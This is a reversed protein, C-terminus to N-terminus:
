DSVPRINLGYYKDLTELSQLYKTNFLVYYSYNDNYVSSTWITGVDVSNTLECHWIDGTAPIFIKKNTDDHDVLLLGVVGSYEPLYDQNAPLRYIGGKPNSSTLEKWPYFDFLYPYPNIRGYLCQNFLKILEDSTPTRWTGGWNVRAADHEMDMSGPYVYTSNIYGNEFGSKWGTFTVKGKDSIEIGSYRPETEGWAFYDGYCTTPSGAVTTAGVNMTAWKLGAIEVYKHGNIEPLVVLEYYKGAQFGGEKTSRVIEDGDKVSLQVGAPVVIYYTGTETTSFLTQKEDSDIRSYEVTTGFYSASLKYIWKTSGSKVNINISGKQNIIKLIAVAPKLAIELGNQGDSTQLGAMAFMNAVDEIKGSQGVLSVEKSPFFAYWPEANELPTADACIFGEETNTFVYPNALGMRTVTIQDDKAFEFHWVGANDTFTAKTDGNQLVTTRLIMGKQSGGVEAIEDKSCATLGLVAAMMTVYITKKM